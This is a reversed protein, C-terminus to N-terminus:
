KCPRWRAFTGTPISQKGELMLEGVELEGPLIEDFLYRLVTPTIGGTHNSLAIFLPTDSLLQKCLLLLEPLDREIKFVEGKAGRGFSPPDLLIGDYRRGRKVERKLFKMADDVIWRIPKNELGNLAANERAWQVMGKSADLHCVSAGARALALTAGGSYAFLNLVEAGETVLDAAWQWMFSHEPFIGLHGFDTASLRFKLGDHEVIWSEPLAGKWGGKEERSFSADSEWHSLTPKWLAQGCPREICVDGFQEFKKQNGSDLLSYKM